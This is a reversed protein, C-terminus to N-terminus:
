PRVNLAQFMRPLKGTDDDAHFTNALASTFTSLTIPKQVFCSVGLQKCREVDLPSNSSTMVIVPLYQLRSNARIRELLQIGGLSPLNIDLFIAVLQHTDLADDSLYAIAKEGDTVIEVEQALNAKQLMLNLLEQDDPNDEIVLIRTKKEMKSKGAMRYSYTAEKRQWGSFDPGKGGAGQSPAFYNWFDSASYWGTL